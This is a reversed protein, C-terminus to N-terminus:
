KRFIQLAAEVDPINEKMPYESCMISMAGLLYKWYMDGFLESDGERFSGEEQGRKFLKGFYERGFDERIPNDWLPVSVENKILVSYFIRLPPIYDNYYPYSLLRLTFMKIGDEAREQSACADYCPQLHSYLQLLIDEKSQFYRYILGKSIGISESIDTMKTNSYGRGDFLRIATNLIQEKRTEQIQLRKEESMAMSIEGKRKRISIITYFDLFTM